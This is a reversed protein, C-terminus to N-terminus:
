VGIENICHWCLWDFNQNKMHDFYHVQIIVPRGQNECRQCYQYKKDMETNEGEKM